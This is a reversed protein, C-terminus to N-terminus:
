RLHQIFALLDRVEERELNNLLGEPMLSVKSHEIRDIEQQHLLVETGSGLRLRLPNEGTGVRVGTYSEGDKTTVNLTEYGQAITASPHDLDPLMAAGACIIAGAILEAPTLATAMIGTDVFRSSENLLPLAALLLTSFPYRM